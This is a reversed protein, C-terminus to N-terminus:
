WPRAKQAARALEVARRGVYEEVDKPALHRDKAFDFERPRQENFMVRLIADDRSLGVALSLEAPASTLKLCLKDGDESLSSSQQKAKFQDNAFRLGDRAKELADLAVALAEELRKRKRDEEEAERETQTKIIDMLEDRWNAM